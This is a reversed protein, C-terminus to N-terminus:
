GLNQYSFVGYRAVYTCPRSYSPDVTDHMFMGLAEFHSHRILMRHAIDMHCNLTLDQNPTSWLSHLICALMAYTFEPGHSQEIM